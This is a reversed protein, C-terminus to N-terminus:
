DMKKTYPYFHQMGNVEMILNLDKIYLDSIMLGDLNKEMEIVYGEAISDISVGRRQAMIPFHQEIHKKVTLDVLDQIYKSFKDYGETKDKIDSEKILKEYKTRM